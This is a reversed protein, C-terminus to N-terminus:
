KGQSNAEHQWKLRASFQYDKGYNDKNQLPDVKEKMQAGTWDRHAGTRENQIFDM